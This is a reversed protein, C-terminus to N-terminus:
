SLLLDRLRVLALVPVQEQELARVRRLAQAQLPEREQGGVPEPELELELM